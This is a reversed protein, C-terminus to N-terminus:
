GRDEPPRRAGVFQAFGTIRQQVDVMGLARLQGTIEDPEFM